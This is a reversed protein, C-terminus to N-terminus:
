NVVSQSMSWGATVTGVRAGSKDRSKERKKGCICMDVLTQRFPRIFIVYPFFNTAYSVTELVNTVMVFRRYAVTQISCRGFLSMYIESHVFPEPFHCVLFILCVCILLTTVRIHARQRKM